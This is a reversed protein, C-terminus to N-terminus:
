RTLEEVRFDALRGAHRLAVHTVGAARLKRVWSPSVRKRFGTTRWGRGPRFEQEVIPHEHFYPRTSIGFYTAAAAPVTAQRRM